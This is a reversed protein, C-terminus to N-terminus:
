LSKLHAQTSRLLSDQFMSVYQPDLPFKSLQFQLLQLLKQVRSQLSVPIIQLNERRLICALVRDQVCFFEVLATDASLVARIEDLAVHSPTQLGADSMEAATAEQVARMLDSERARAQEELKHIREQSREEPRL